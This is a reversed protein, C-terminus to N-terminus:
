AEDTEPRAAPTEGATLAPRFTHAAYLAELEETLQKRLGRVARAQKRMDDGAASRLTEFLEVNKRFGENGSGPGFPAYWKIAKYGLEDRLYKVTEYVAGKEYSFGNCNAYAMIRDRTPGGLLRYLPVGFTKCRIDWLCNDVASLAFMQEGAYSRPSMRFMLEWTYETALPDLGIVVPAYFEKVYKLVTSNGIPGYVGTIGEDTLVEVFSHCISNGEPMCHVVSQQKNFKSYVDTPHIMRKGFQEYRYYTSNDPFRASLQKIMVDTIKM